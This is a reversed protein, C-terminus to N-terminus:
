RKLALNDKELEKNKKQAKEKERKQHQESLALERNEEEIVALDRRMSQILPPTAPKTTKDNIADDAADKRRQERCLALYEETSVFEVENEDGTSARTSGGQNVNEDTLFAGGMNDDIPNSSVVKRITSVPKRDQQVVFSNRPVAEETVYGETAVQTVVSTLPDEKDELALKKEKEAPKKRPAAVAAVPRSAKSKSGPRSNTAYTTDSDGFSTAKGKSGSRSAPRKGYVVHSQPTLLQLKGTATDLNYYSNRTQPVNRDTPSEDYFWPTLKFVNYNLGQM